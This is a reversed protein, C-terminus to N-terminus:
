KGSGIATRNGAPDVWTGDELPSIVSWSWAKVGDRLAFGSGTWFPPGWRSTWNFSSPDKLANDMTYIRRADDLAIMEDDDLSISAVRGDFCLPLPLTRWPDASGRARVYIAGKHTAFEYLRNFTETQTRLYVHKPLLGAPAEPWTPPIGAVPGALAQDPMGATGGQLSKCSQERVSEDIPLNPAQALASPAATLALAVVAIARRVAPTM